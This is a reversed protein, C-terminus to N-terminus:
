AGSMMLGLVLIIIIFIALVTTPGVGEDAPEMVVIVRDRRHPVLSVATAGFVLVILCLLVDPNM